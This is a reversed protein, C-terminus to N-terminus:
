EAPLSDWIEDTTGDKAVVSIRGSAELVAYEVDALRRCGSSRLSAMLEARTIKERDMLAQNIKGDRILVSAKGDVLNELWQWRATALGMLWNCVVLTGALIAGATFSNDGGNMANQVANSILLLLILDFPTIQAFQRRGSARLAILLFVYVLVARLVLQPWPVTTEFTQTFM